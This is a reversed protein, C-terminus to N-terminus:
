RGTLAEYDSSIHSSIFDYSASFVIVYLHSVNLSQSVLCYVTSRNCTEDQTSQTCCASFSCSSKLPHVALSSSAGSDMKTFRPFDSESFDLLLSPQPTKLTKMTIMKYLCIFAKLMCMFRGTCAIKFHQLKYSDRETGIAKGVWWCM